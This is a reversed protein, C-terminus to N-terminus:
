NPNVRQTLITKPKALHKMEHREVKLLGMYLLKVTRFIGQARGIGRREERM